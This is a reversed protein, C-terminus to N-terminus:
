SDKTLCQGGVGAGPLHMHWDHRANILERIEFVNVGMSECLLAVENPFAINM